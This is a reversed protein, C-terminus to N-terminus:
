KLILNDITILEECLEIAIKALKKSNRFDEPAYALEVYTGKTSCFIVFIENKLKRFWIWNKYEAGMWIRNQKGWVQKLKKKLNKHMKQAERIDFSELWEWYYRNNQISTTKLDEIKEALDVRESM